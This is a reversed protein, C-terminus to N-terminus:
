FHNIHFYRHSQIMASFDTIKIKFETSGYTLLFHAEDKYADEYPIKDNSIFAYYYGDVQPLSEIIGNGNNYYICKLYQPYQPVFFLLTGNIKADLQVMPNNKKVTVNSGGSGEFLLSCKDQIFFDRETAISKGEVKYFGPFLTVENEKAWSGTFSKEAGFSLEFSPVILTGDLIRQVLIAEVGSLNSYDNIYEPEDRGHLENNRVKFSIDVTVESLATKKFNKVRAVKGGELFSSTSFFFAADKDRKDVKISIGDYWESSHFTIYDGDITYTGKAIEEWECCQLIYLTNDTFTALTEGYLEYYGGSLEYYYFNGDKTFTLYWNLETKESLAWSGALWSESVAGDEKNCSCLFLAFLVTLVSSLTIKKIM